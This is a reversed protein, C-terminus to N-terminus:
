ERGRAEVKEKGARLGGPKVDEAAADGRMKKVVELVLGFGGRGCVVVGVL